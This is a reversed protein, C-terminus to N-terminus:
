SSSWSSLPLNLSKISKAFSGPVVTAVREDELLAVRTASMSPSTVPSKVPLASVAVVKAVARVM